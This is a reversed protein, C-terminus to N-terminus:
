SPDYWMKLAPRLNADTLDETMVVVADLVSGDKVGSESLAGKPVPNGEFSLLVRRDAKMALMAKKEFDPVMSDSSIDVSFVDGTISVIQVVMMSSEEGEGGFHKANQDLSREMDLNGM